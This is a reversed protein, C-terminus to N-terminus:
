RGATRVVVSRGLASAGLGIRLGRWCTAATQAGGRRLMLNAMGRRRSGADARHASVGTADALGAQNRTRGPMRESGSVEGAASVAPGPGSCRTAQVGFLGPRSTHKRDGGFGCDEECRVRVAANEAAPRLWSRGRCEEELGFSHFLGCPVVLAHGCRSRHGGSLPDNDGRRCGLAPRLRCGNRRIAGRRTAADPQGGGFLFGPETTGNGHDRWGGFRIGSIV